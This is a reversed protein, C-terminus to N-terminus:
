IAGAEAQPPYPPAGSYADTHDGDENLDQPRVGDVASAQETLLRADEPLLAGLSGPYLAEFDVLQKALFGSSWSLLWYLTRPARAEEGSFAAMHKLTMPATHIIQSLYIWITSWASPHLGAATAIETLSRHAFEKGKLQKDRSNKDQAQFLRNAQLRKLAEDKRGTAHEITVGEPRFDQILELHKCCHHYDM